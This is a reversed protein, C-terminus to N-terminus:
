IGSYGGSVDAHIGRLAKDIASSLRQEVLAAVQQPDSVGSISIPANIRLRGGALRGGGNPIIKGSSKPSFWEPGREGVQYMSGAHVPGGHARPSGTDGGISEGKTSAAAGGGGFAGASGVSPAPINSKIGAIIGNIAGVAASYVSKIGEWAAAIKAKEGAIANAVGTGFGELGAKIAAGVDSKPLMNDWWHQIGAMTGSIPGGGAGGGGPFYQNAITGFDTWFQQAKQKFDASHTDWAAKIETWYAAIAVVVGAAGIVLGAPSLLLPALRLAALGRGALRAAAGIRTLGAAIALGRGAMGLMGGFLLRGAFAAGLYALRMGVLGVTASTLASTLMANTRVWESAKDTYKSIFRASSELEPGLANGLTESFRRGSANMEDTAGSLGQKRREIDEALTDTADRGIQKFEAREKKYLMLSRAANQAQMDQWIEGVRGADGKVAKDIINTVTDFIDEGNKLGKALEKSVNVGLGALKKKTESSDLKTLLNYVDNAATKPDGSVKTAVQLAAGLNSVTDMGTHGRASLIGTLKPMDEAAHKLEFAGTKGQAALINNARELENNGLKMNQVFSRNMGVAEAINLEEGYARRAKAAVRLAEPNKLPDLGKGVAEEFGQAVEGYTLQMERAVDGVQTKVESMIAPTARMKQEIGKFTRDLSIADKAPRRLAAALAIAAIGTGLMKDKLDDMRDANARAMTGVRMQGRAIGGAIGGGQAIAMLQQLSRGAKSAPGSVRDILRVLLSSSLTLAM